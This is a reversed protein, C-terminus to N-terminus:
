SRHLSCSSLDSGLIEDLLRLFRQNQERTGISLRIFMPLGFINGPRIIMGQPLLTRFLTESELPTEVFLFNAQSPVVFLSRERLADFMFDRERIILRVHQKTFSNGRLKEEEGMGWLAAAQALSNVNFPLKVKTMLAALAPHAMLYGVRLGALAYAKSFTRIGIVRADNMLYDTSDVSNKAGVFEHYAEDIVVLTNDPLQNLFREFEQKLVITGTPNNPSCLWILKTGEDVRSLLADLDIHFDKLPVRVVRGGALRTATEYADFTPDPVVAVDEHDIFALAILRICEEAGNGFVFCGSPIALRRSLAARLEQCHGDPYRCLDHLAGVITEIMGHPLPLPCENSALKIVEDLGFEKQVERIPKGPIYPKLSM